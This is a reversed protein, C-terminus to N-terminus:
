CIKTWLYIKLGYIYKLDMYINQIVFIRLEMFFNYDVFIIKLGYFIKLEYFWLYKTISWLYKSISCM